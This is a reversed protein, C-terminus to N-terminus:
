YVLLQFLNLLLFLQLNGQVTCTFGSVENLLHKICLRHVTPFRAILKVFLEVKFHLFLQFDYKIRGAAEDVIM